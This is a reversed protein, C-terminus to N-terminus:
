AAAEALKQLLQRTIPDSVAESFTTQKSLGTADFAPRLHKYDQIKFPKPEPMGLKKRLEDGLFQWAAGAPLTTRRPRLQIIDAVKDPRTM